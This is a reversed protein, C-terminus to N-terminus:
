DFLIEDVTVFVYGQETLTDVIQLAATVTSPYYDHMLIIDNEKVKSVVKRVICDVNTSCWDLPDINWLVPFLNVEKEMEKDWSGFPPRIYIMDMGTIDKLVANSALVEEKFEDRNNATLGVHHYTHNGIVHGEDMMRRIIDPYKEANQGLVFFTAKADRKALGDLIQETYIPHPGDDFTLAIKKLEEGKEQKGEEQKGEDASVKGDTMVREAEKMEAQKYFFLCGLLFCLCLEAAIWRWRKTLGM